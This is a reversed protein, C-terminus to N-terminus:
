LGDRHAGCHAYRAFFHTEPQIEAQSPLRAFPTPDPDPPLFIVIKKGNQKWISNMLFPAIKTLKQDAPGTDAGQAWSPSWPSPRSLTRRVPYVNCALLTFLAVSLILSLGGMAAGRDDPPLSSDANANRIETYGVVSGPPGRLPRPLRFVPNRASELAPQTAQGPPDPGPRPTLFHRM